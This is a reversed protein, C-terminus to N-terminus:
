RSRQARTLEAVIRDPEGVIEDKTYRYMRWGKDVLRTIRATDRRVAAASTHGKGDYEIGVMLDPWALDIWVATREVPDQVVWQVQPPPLGAQEIMLRLRTEMPSGAYPNAWALTEHILDSGRGGCYRVAFHLLLNPSVCYRNTLRDVGVVRDMLDGRRGLDYATRLPTTTRVDAAGPPPRPLLDGVQCTEGPAIRDRRVILGARNCRGGGPVTVEAPVSRHPACDADLLLAASWGSLVGKGEVLRYAALSRLM